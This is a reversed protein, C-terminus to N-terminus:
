TENGRMAPGLSTGPELPPMGGGGQTLDVLEGAASGGTLDVVDGEPAGGEAPAGPEGGEAPPQLAATMQMVTGVTALRTGKGESDLKEATEINVAIKSALELLGLDKLLEMRQEDRAAKALAGMVQQREAPSLAELDEPLEGSVKRLKEIMEFRGPFDSAELVMPILVGKYQDPIGKILEVLQTFLHSRYTPSSPVDALELNLQARSVDNERYELGTAEDIKKTNLAVVKGWKSGPKDIRVKQENLSLDEITMAMLREGVLQRGWRFNDNIEALGTAGQQVLQSIALGSQNGQAEGLMPQFVGAVRNVGEKSDLYANFQQQNLQSHEDITATLNKNQRAPNLKLMADPRAIESGVTNWDKFADEDAIVRQASLQWLMKARRRNVEDQLPMMARILGYPVGTKDERYGWFPIYPFDAHPYPSPRDVIRHPGIFYAQRMKPFVAEEPKLLGNNVAAQHVPNKKDFEVVRGSPLRLVAGRIWRRYWVEFLCMRHRPAERWESEEWGWDREVLMDQALKALSTNLYSNDWTSWNAGAFEILDKHKPFMAALQDEDYWRRRVLYRADKLEPSRSRWDWWIERRDISEVVYPFDFPNTNRRVEVWGIGVKIQNAYADACARDARTKREAQQLKFSLADALDSSTRDNEAKCIWDSRTQAEMGLVLNITPAILNVVVPPLGRAKLQALQDQDLQNSDYYDGEYEARERWNPQLRMDELYTNLESLDLANPDRKVRDEGHFMTGRASATM